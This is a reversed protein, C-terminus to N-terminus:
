LEGNAIMEEIIEQNSKVGKDSQKDAVLRLAWEEVGTPRKVAYQSKQQEQIATRYIEPTVGKEEFRQCMKSFETFGAVMKGTEQEWVKQYEAFDARANERKDTYSETDTDTDVNRITVSNTVPANGYYQEKQKRERLRRMREADSVPAQREAFKTVIWKNNHLMVINKTQLAELDNLLEDQETRLRWAMAEAAPLEGDDGFEGALLFLEIVRRYLHDSLMGMKHDDLIEHYLKIWYKSAM